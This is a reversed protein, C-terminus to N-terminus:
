SEIFALYQRVMHSIRSNFVDGHLVKLIDSNPKGAVFDEATFGFFNPEDKTEAACILAVGFVSVGIFWPTVTKMDEKFQEPTLREPCDLQELTSNLVELYHSYLEKQRHERVEHQASSYVFYVLDTAPLSYRSVQYDIFKVEVVSEKNYKFFLNNVWLDGHNLVNLRGAKPKLCDVLEDWITDVRSLFFDAYREFGGMKQLAEGMTRVGLEVWGRLPGGEPFFGERGVFEILDRNENYLAVTSAHYKAMTAVVLKCHDFDLQEHKNAIRYDSGLDEMVIVKDVTSHYSLPAFSFNVKKMMKPLLVNYYLVEKELIIPGVVNYILGSVDPVKIVLSKSHEQTSNQLKYSVKVRFIDSSFGEFSTSSAIKFSLISVKPQQDIGGQFAAALFDENLWSPIKSEM